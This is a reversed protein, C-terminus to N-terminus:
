LFSFWVKAVNGSQNGYGIECLSLALQHKQVLEGSSKCSRHGKDPSRTSRVHFSRDAASIRWCPPRLLEALRRPGEIALILLSRKMSRVGFTALWHFISVSGLQAEWGGLSLRAAERYTERAAPAMRRRTTDVGKAEETV